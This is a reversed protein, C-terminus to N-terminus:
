REIFHMKPFLQLAFYKSVYTFTKNIYSVIWKISIDCTFFDKKSSWCLRHMEIANIQPNEYM